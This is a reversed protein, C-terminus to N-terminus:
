GEFAQNSREVKQSVKWANMQNEFDEQLALNQTTTEKKAPYLEFETQKPV